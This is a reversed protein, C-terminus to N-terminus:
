GVPCTEGCSTELKLAIALAIALWLWLAHQAMASSLANINELRVPASSSTSLLM